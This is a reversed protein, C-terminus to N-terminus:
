KLVYDSKTPDLEITHKKVEQYLGTIAVSKTGMQDGTLEVVCFSNWRLFEVDVPQSPNTQPVGPVYLYLSNARSIDEWVMSHKIFQTATQPDSFALFDSISDYVVRVGRVQNRLLRVAKNYQRTLGVADRPDSRLTQAWNALEDAVDDLSAGRKVTGTWSSYCDVVVLNAFNRVFGRHDMWWAKTDPTSGALLAFQKALQTLIVSPPQNFAFYIAGENNLLGAAAFRNGIRWPFFAKGAILLIPFLLSNGTKTADQLFYDICEVGFNKVASQQQFPEFSSLPKRFKLRDISLVRFVLYSIVGLGLLWIVLSLRLLFPWFGRVQLPFLLSSIGLGLSAVLAAIAIIALKQLRVFAKRSIVTALVYTLLANVFALASVVARAAMPDLPDQLLQSIDTPM